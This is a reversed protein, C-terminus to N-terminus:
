KDRRGFVLDQAEFDGNELGKWLGDVTNIAQGTPLKFYVSGATAAHKALQEASFKDADNVGQGLEELARVSSEMFKGTPSLKYDFGSEWAGTVDRVLPVAATPYLMIKKTAWWAINEDEDPGQGTALAGFVAPFVILYLWQPLRETMLAAWNGAAIDRKTKRTLDVQMNYQASFFSYFMTFLRHLESSNTFKAMDKVTGTGQTLRVTRDAHMIAADQDSPHKSLYDQYAGLWTATAVYKDAAGIFYFAYRRIVDAKTDQLSVKKVTDRIDRDQQNFRSKMEGSLGNVLELTKYPHRSMQYIANALNRKGVRTLSTFFGLPQAIATTVRYGMGFMTAGTRIRQIFRTGPDTETSRETAVARLWFQLQEYVHENEVDEIARRVDPDWLIKYADKVAERYTLDHIVNHIHGPLVALELKIPKAVKTRKVTHKHNTGPRIFESSFLGELVGKDAPTTDEILNLGRRARFDYVVPYYGGKYEGYQNSFARPEIKPPAVGTLKKELAAIRPWLTDLLDWIQQVRDWDEKSMHSLVENLQTENWLEGELLKKRNSETGTNLATAYIEQRTMNNGLSNIRVTENLYSSNIKSFIDVLKQNYELNLENQKNQAEVIPQFVHEMLPGKINGADLWEIIQEPKLLTAHFGAAFNLIGKQEETYTKHKRERAPRSNITNLIQQKVEAFERQRKASTLKHKLRGLHELNDLTEGLGILDEVTLEKYNVRETERLLREPVDVVVEGDAKARELFERLRERKKLKKGSVRAFEYQEVLARIQEMYAPDITKSATRTYRAAKNRIKEVTETVLRTENDLAQAMLQKRKADAAAAWDGKVVAADAQAATRRVAARTRAENVEGVKKGYIANRAIQTAMQRPGFETTTRGAKQSLAKLEKGLLLLRGEQAMQRRIAADMVASDSFDEGYRSIMEERAMEKAAEKLPAAQTFDFVMDDATPYGLLEAVVDPHLGNKRFASRPFAKAADTSYKKSFAEVDIAIKKDKFTQMHSYPPQKKLKAEAEQRLQKEIEGMWGKSLRQAQGVIREISKQSADARLDEVLKLYELYENQDIGMEEASKFIPAYALDQEVQAIRQETVLMRDFVARIEPDIKGGLRTITRYLTKLWRKFSAFMNNLKPDPSKGEMFYAEAWRAFQEHQDRTIKNDKIGLKKSVLDWDAQLDPSSTATARLTNLFFHGAEHLLTSMDAQDFLSILAKNGDFQIAGRNEQRLIDPNSPDFTGQNFQSKIQTPDFVVYQLDGSGDAWGEIIASDHGAAIAENLLRAVEKESTLKGTERDPLSITKPNQMSLYVPVINAGEYGQIFGEEDRFETGRETFSSAIDADPTFFFGPLKINSAPVNASFESFARNTGHYLPLPAGETTVAKSDKFWNRFDSTDVLPQFLTEVDTPSGEQVANLLGRQVEVSFESFMESPSKGTRQAMTQFFANFLTIYQNTADPTFGVAEIQARLNELEPMIETIQAQVDTASSAARESAATARAIESQLIEDMAAQYPAIEAATYGSPDTRVLALLPNDKPDKSLHAVFEGLSVEVDGGTVLAEDLRQRWNPIPPGYRDLGQEQFLQVLEQAPLFLKRDGTQQDILKAAVEPDRAILENGDLHELISTLEKNQRQSRSIEALEAGFRTASLFPGMLAMVQLAQYAAQGLESMAEEPTIAAFDGESAVKAMEGAAIQLGQQLIETTIETAGVVAVNKAFNGLATRITPNKLATAMGEKTILSMVRESGPIVRLAQALAVNELLAGGAGTINAALEVLEPELPNGAEDKISQFHLRALGTQFQQQAALAGAMSGAVAGSAMGAATGAGPVVSGVAAGGLAGVTGGQLAGRATIALPAVQQGLGVWAEEWFGEAGFTRAGNARYQNLFAKDEITAKGAAERNSAMAAQYSIMGAQVSEAGAQFLWSLGSINDLEDPKALPLDKPNQAFYGRLEPSKEFVARYAGLAASNELLELQRIGREPAIGPALQKARAYAQPDHQRAWRAAANVQAFEEKAFEEAFNSLAPPEKKIEAALEDVISSDELSASFTNQM